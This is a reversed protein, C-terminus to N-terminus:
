ETANRETEEAAQKEEEPSEARLGSQAALLLKAMLLDRHGADYADWLVEVARGFQGTAFYQFGLLLQLDAKAPAEQAARLLRALVREYADAGGFVEAPELRVVGLDDLGSLALRLTRAAGEYDDVGLLALSLALTVTRGKPQDKLAQQFASIAESFQGGRLKAEGLAFAAGVQEQGGLMPALKSEFLPGEIKRPATRDPAEDPRLEAIRPQYIVMPPDVITYTRYVTTSPYRLYTYDRRGSFYSYRGSSFSGFPFSIYLGTSRRPRPRRTHHVQRRHPYRRYSVYVSRSRDRDSDSERGDDQHSATLRSFLIAGKTTRPLYQGKERTTVRIAGDAAGATFAVLLLALTGVIVVSWRRRM